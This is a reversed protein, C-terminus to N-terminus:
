SRTDPEDPGERKKKDKPDDRKIGYVEKMFAVHEEFTRFEPVIM